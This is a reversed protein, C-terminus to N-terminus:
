MHASAYPTLGHTKPNSIEFRISSNFIKNSNNEKLKFVNRSNIVRPLAKGKNRHVISLSISNNLKTDYQSYNINQNLDRSDSSDNLKDIVNQTAWSSINNERKRNFSFDLAKLDLVKDKNTAGPLHSPPKLYSINRINRNLIALNRSSNKLSKVETSKPLNDAAFMIRQRSKKEKSM